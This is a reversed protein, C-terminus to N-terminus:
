RKQNAAPAFDRLAKGHEGHGVINCHAEIGQNALEAISRILIDVNKAKSLRGVFLVSFPPAPREKSAMEQARQVQNLTMVSTFFPVVHDPQNPWQGYVTVPGRWWRSGLLYRQLRVSRAEGPYGTWQGAYKAVLKKCFIPGLIVGLLGLNGPCRVHVADARMMATSLRIVIWPLLCLQWLKSRLKAGGSAPIPFMSVNGSCLPLGDDEPPGVICPAAIVVEPFMSCWLDMERVYPGYAYLAGNHRYHPAHTVVLLRKVSAM